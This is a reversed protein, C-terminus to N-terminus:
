ALNRPSMIRGKALCSLVRGLFGEKMLLEAIKECM